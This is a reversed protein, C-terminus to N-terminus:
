AAVVAGSLAEWATGDAIEEPRWQCWALQAAWPRREPLRPVAGLDHAAVPWAMSGEDMAVVPVGAMAADVGSNSNWTVAFAAGALAEALNGGADMAGPPVFVANM